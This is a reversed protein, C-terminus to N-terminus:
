FSNTSLSKTVRFATPCNQHSRSPPPIPPLPHLDPPRPSALEVVSNPMCDPRKFRAATVGLAHGRFATHRLAIPAALDYPAPHRRCHEFRPLNPPGSYQQQRSSLGLHRRSRTATLRGRCDVALWLHQAISPTPLAPWGPCRDRASAM